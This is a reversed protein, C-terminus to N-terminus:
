NQKNNKHWNLKDHDQNLKKNNKTDIQNDKLRNNSFIM